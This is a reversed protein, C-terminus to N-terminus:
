AARRGGRPPGRRPRRGAPGPRAPDSCGVPGLRAPRGARPPRLGAGRGTGVVVSLLACLVAAWWGVRSTLHVVRRIDSTGPPPGEGLPGRLEQRGGYVVPGGLTVGLAGASAAEVPGANPSPHRHGDRRWARWTERPRGGIVPALVVILAATLRAPLLNALDDLRASASGFRRYRDSRHGVMADLTNAARYAVIGAPGGIVGWVLPGVVADATNEAVSEVVARAIADSDLSAPDRGVLWPMLHRADDVDGAELAAGIRLAVDGLQRGGLAGWACAATLAMLALPRGPTRRQLALAAATPVGVAIATFVAGDIRRDAYLCRELATAARGYAAVPHGRQPDGLLRDGLWGLLLGVAVPWGTGEPM